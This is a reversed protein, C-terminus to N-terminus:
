KVTLADAVRQNMELQSTFGTLETAQRAPDIVILTPATVVPVQATVAAFQTLESVPVAFKVVDGHHTPMAGLESKMALDDAAAPNYFLIAVVKHDAVATQLTKLQSAISPASAKAAAVSHAKSPKVATKAAPKAVSAHKAHSPAPKTAPAAKSAPSAANTTTTAPAAKAPTPSPAAQATGTPAGLKANAAGSIAVAQHAKNIASQYQGLGSPSGGSTSSNPKLAVLWLAFFAVTGVLLGIMPKPVRAM